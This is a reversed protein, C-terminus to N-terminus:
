ENIKSFRLRKVDCKFGSIRYYIIIHSKMSPAFHLLTTLFLKNFYYNYTCTPFCQTDEPLEIYLLYTNNNCMAMAHLLTLKYIDNRIIVVSYYYTPQQKM